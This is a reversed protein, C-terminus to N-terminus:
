KHGITPPESDTTEDYPNGAPLHAINEAGCMKTIAKLFDREVLITRTDNHHARYDNMYADAYWEIPGDRGGPDDNKSHIGILTM